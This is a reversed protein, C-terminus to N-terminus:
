KKKVAKTKVAQTLDKTDKKNVKLIKLAGKAGDKSGYGETTAIKRGNVGKVRGRFENKKDKFIEGKSKPM